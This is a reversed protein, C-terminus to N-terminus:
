PGVSRIAFSGSETRVLWWLASAGASWLFACAFAGAVRGRAHLRWGAGALASLALWAGAGAAPALREQAPGDGLWFYGAFALSAALDMCSRAAAM